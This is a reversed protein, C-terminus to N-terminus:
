EDENGHEEWYTSRKTALITGSSGDPEEWALIRRPYADEVYVTTVGGDFEWRFVTAKMKGIETVITQSKGKTLTADVLSPGIHRKRRTWASPLLKFSQQEGQEMREGRLERVRIWLNDETEVHGATPFSYAGEGESEFYSYWVGSYTTDTRVMREFVVGCWEQASFAVKMTGWLPVGHQQQVATFVSTMVSYEYIGTTFTRLDNLKLVPIKESEPIPNDPKIHNSLRMPETVFVMIRRGVRMQGYRKERLEYTSIEATGDYWLNDFRDGWAPTLILATSILGALPTILRSRYIDM